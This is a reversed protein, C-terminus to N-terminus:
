LSDTTKPLNKAVVWQDPEDVQTGPRSLDAQSCGGAPMEVSCTKAYTPIDSPTTPKPTPMSIRKLKPLKIEEERAYDSLVLFTGGFRSSGAM